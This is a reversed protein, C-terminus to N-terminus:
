WGKHMELVKGKIDSHSWVSKGTIYELRTQKRNGLNNPQMNRDTSRM